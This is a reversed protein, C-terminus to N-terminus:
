KSPCLVAMAGAVFYIIGGTETEYDFIQSYIIRLSKFNLSLPFVALPSTRKKLM